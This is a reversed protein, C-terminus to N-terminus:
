AQRHPWSAAHGLFPFPQPCLTEAQTQDM